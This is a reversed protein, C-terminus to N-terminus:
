ILLLKPAQLTSRGPLIFLSILFSLVCLILAPPQVESSLIVLPFETSTTPTIWSSHLIKRFYERTLMQPLDM